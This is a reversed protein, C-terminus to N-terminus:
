EKKSEINQESPLFQGAQGESIIRTRINKTKLFWDELADADKNKIADTLHRLDQNFKEVFELVYDANNIFIDRWMIPDSAAIRTFDRFGGAAFRTIEDPNIEDSDINDQKNQTMEIELGKATGVISYAILHPLHSTVALIRDHHHASMIEVRAGLNRWFSALQELRKSDHQKPPTLIVYRGVFLDALGASPGSNETGAVPHAPLLHCDEPILDQCDRFVSNKTSGVDSIVCGAKLFKHIKEFCNRYAGVPIALIILDADKVADEIETCYFDALQYNRAGTLHDPNNDHITIKMSRNKQAKLARAISSGILGCGIIAIHKFDSQPLNSPAVTM